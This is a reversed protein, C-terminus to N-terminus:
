YNILYRFNRRDFDLLSSSLNLDTKLFLIWWGLAEYNQKAKQDKLYKYRPTDIKIM